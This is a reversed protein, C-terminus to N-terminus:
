AIVLVGETTIKAKYFLSQLILHFSINGLTYLCPDTNSKLELNRSGYSIVLSFYFLVWSPIETKSCYCENLNLNGLLFIIFWSFTKGIPRWGSNYNMFNQVWFCTTSTTKTGTGVDSFIGDTTEVEEQDHHTVYVWRRVKETIKM